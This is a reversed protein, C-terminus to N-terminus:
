GGSSSPGRPTLGLPRGVVTVLLGGSLIRQAARRVDALTVADIMAARRDIYDIGLNDIQQQVLQAAIKSSTDLNLAFSAKLYSKAKALEDETPGDALMKRFEHEIVDITEATADARTATGGM